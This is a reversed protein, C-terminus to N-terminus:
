LTRGFFRMWIHSFIIQFIWIIAAVFYLEYRQLKNFLGFAFGSFTLTCIISQMLYNTFAMRGVPMMLRKFWSMIPLKILLILFGINGLTMGLRGFPLFYFPDHIAIQYPDFGYKIKSMAAVYYIPLGITYGILGMLLYFRKSQTGSLIQMRFLVIGILM